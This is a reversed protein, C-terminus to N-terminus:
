GFAVALVVIVVALGLIGKVLLGLKNSGGNPAQNCCGMTDEEDVVAMLM